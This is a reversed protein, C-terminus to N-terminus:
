KSKYMKYKMRNLLSNGNTSEEVDLIKELVHHIDVGAERFFGTCTACYTYLVGGEVQSKIDEKMEHALVPEKVAACGGAGCCMENVSIIESSPMFKSMKERLENSERDPCPRFIKISEEDFDKGLNLEKLKTYIDVMKIDLKDKLFYFCNPCLIILEEVHREKLRMKLRDLLVNEKDELGLESIPKGCCDFIVGIDNRKMVDIIKETTKPIYSLFNCGTFVASGNRGVNKYNKFLYNQKELIIGNYGKVPIKGNNDEVQRRRAALAIERGDIDEPCVIKCRGCLFCNYALEPHHEFEMLDFNVNMQNDYKTLFTCNKTCMKCHICNKSIIHTKDFCGDFNKNDKKLESM